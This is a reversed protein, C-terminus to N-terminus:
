KEGGASRLEIETKEVLKRLSENEPNQLLVKKWIELAQGISGKRFYVMGLKYRIDAVDMSKQTMAAAGRQDGGSSLRSGCRGCYLDGEEVLADCEPCTLMSSM